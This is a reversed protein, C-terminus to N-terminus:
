THCFEQYGIVHGIVAERFCTQGLRENLKFRVIVPKCILKYLLDGRIRIIADDSFPSRVEALATNSLAITCLRQTNAQVIKQATETIEFESFEIATRIELDYIINGEVNRLSSPNEDMMLMQKYQTQRVKLTPCGTPSPEM